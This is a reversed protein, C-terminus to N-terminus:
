IDAYKKLEKVTLAKTEFKVPEYGLAISKTEGLPNYDLLEYGQVHKFDKVFERINTINESNDTIGPILPTRVLFPVSLEDLKKFNEKIASNSVGTYKIHKEDDWIKFDAMVFDLSKLIEEHYIFLSTEIATNIGEAKCQKVLEMLVDPQCLAEGGSFTVGGKERYYPKDQRIQEMIQEVTMSQGCLVKAGAFCGKDCMGCGICKEPYHLVQPEFRICEPNHCWVCKLPCGKFFVTTRFGAGDHVSAREIATVIGSIERM